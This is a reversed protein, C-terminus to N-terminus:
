EWKPHADGSPGLDVILTSASCSHVTSLQYLGEKAMKYPADNLSFQLLMPGPPASFTSIGEKLATSQDLGNVLLMYSQSAAHRYAYTLRVRMLCPEGYAPSPAPHAASAPLHAALTDRIEESLHETAKGLPQKEFRRSSATRFGGGFSSIASSFKTDINTDKAEVPTNDLVTKSGRIEESVTWVGRQDGTRADLLVLDILLTWKGHEPSVIPKLTPVLLFDVDSRDHIYDVLWSTDLPTYVGGPSLLVPFYSSTDLLDEYLFVNLHQAVAPGFADGGGDYTPAIGITVRQASISCSAAAFALALIASRLTM